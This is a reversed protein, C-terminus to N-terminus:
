DNSPDYPEKLTNRVVKINYFYQKAPVDASGAFYTKALEDIVEYAGLPRHSSLLAQLVQRRIPTFKQGRRACVQLVLGLCDIGTAPDRGGVLYRIGVLDHLPVLAKSM